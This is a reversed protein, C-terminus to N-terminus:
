ITVGVAPYNLMAPALGQSAARATTLAIGLVEKTTSTGDDDLAGATATTNLRVNAAASALVQLNAPGKIQVWGYSNAAIDVAPVGVLLGRLGTTTTMHAVTNTVSIVCAFTATVAASAQVYMWETGNNGIARTGVAFPPAPYELSTTSIAQTDLVWAGLMNSISFSM